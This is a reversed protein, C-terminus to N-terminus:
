GSIGFAGAGGCFECALVAPHLISFSYYSRHGGYQHHKDRMGGEGEYVVGDKDYDGGVIGEGDGDHNGHGASLSPHM